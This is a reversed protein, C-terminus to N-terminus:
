KLANRWRDNLGSRVAQTVPKDFRWFDFVEDGVKELMTKQAESLASGRVWEITQSFQGRLAGNPHTLM